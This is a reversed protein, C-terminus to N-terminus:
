EATEAKKKTTAVAKKAIPVFLAKAVPDYEAGSPIYDSAYAGKKGEQVKFYVSGADEKVFRIIKDEPAEKALSDIIAKAAETKCNNTRNPTGM